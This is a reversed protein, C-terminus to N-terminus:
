RRGAPTRTAANSSTCTPRRAPRSRATIPTSRTGSTVVRRADPDPRPDCRPVHQRSVTAVVVDVAPVSPRAPAPHPPHPCPLRRRRSRRRRHLPFPVRPSSWRTSRRHLCGDPPQLVCPRSRFLAAPPCACLDRDRSVERTGGAAGAGSVDRETDRTAAPSGRPTEPRLQAPLQAGRQHDHRRPPPEGRPRGDHGAHVPRQQAAVGADGRGAYGMGSRLGGVLQYVVDGLPGAYAVRGEIGEPVLKRTAAGVASPEPRQRLPRRRPGADRGDLGHGRYSKYRRGEFLEM